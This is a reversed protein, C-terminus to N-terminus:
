IRVKTYKHCDNLVIPEYKTNEDKHCSFGLHSIAKLKTYKSKKDPNLQGTSHVSTIIALNKICPNILSLCMMYTFIFNMYHTILDGLLKVIHYFLIHNADQGHVDLYKTFHYLGHYTYVHLWYVLPKQNCEQQTCQIGLIAVQKDFHSEWLISVPICTPQLLLNKYLFVCQWSALSLFVCIPYVHLNM